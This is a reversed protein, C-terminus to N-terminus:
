PTDKWCAYQPATTLCLVSIKTALQIKFSRVAYFTALLELTNIHLQSEKCSWKGGTTINTM